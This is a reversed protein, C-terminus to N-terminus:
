LLGEDRFLALREAHPQLSELEASELRSETNQLHAALGLLVRGLDEDTPTSGNGGDMLLLDLSATHALGAPSGRHACIHIRAVKGLSHSLTLVRAGKEVASLGAISWGLGIASGKALPALLEWPAVSIESSSLLPAPPIAAAPAVGVMCVASGIGLKKLAERRTDM